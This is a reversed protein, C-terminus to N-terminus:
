STAKVAIMGLVNDMMHMFITDCIAKKGGGQYALKVVRPLRTYALGVRDMDVFIGSTHTYSSDAGTDANTYLFSTPHLMIEGTDLHLKDICHVLAKSKADQNFTRTPFTYSGSASYDNTLTMYRTWDTMQTKLDIGVFGHMRFPGKRQKFSSAAAVRFEAETPMSTLIQATPTRFDKHIPYLSQATELIYKFAGRTENGQTSGNDVAAEENSLCRKEVAWKVAVLADAIQSAFEGGSLGVVESEDAFDSVGPKYWTKQGRMQVEQRPNHDFKNADEGDLVGRHGITPYSKVQWNHLVQAPKKRKAIMSTYPTAAAQINAILNAWSPKQGAQTVEFAAPM